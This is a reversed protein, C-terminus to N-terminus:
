LELKLDVLTMKSGSYHTSKALWWGMKTNKPRATKAALACKPLSFYYILFIFFSHSYFCCHEVPKAAQVVLFCVKLLPILNWTSCGTHIQSSFFAKSTSKAKQQEENNDFLVATIFHRQQSWWSNRHPSLGACSCNSTEGHLGGGIWCLIHTNILRHIQTCVYHTLSVSPSLPLCISFVWGLCSQQKSVFM